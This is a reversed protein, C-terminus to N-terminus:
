VSKSRVDAALIHFPRHFQEPAPAAFGLHRHEIIFLEPTRKRQFPCSDAIQPIPLEAWDKFFVLPDSAKALRVDVRKIVVHNRQITWWTM